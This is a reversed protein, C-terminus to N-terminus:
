LNVPKNSLLRRKRAENLLREWCPIVQYLYEEPSMGAVHNFESDLSDSAMDGQVLSMCSALSNLERDIMQPAKRKLMNITNILHRDEMKSIRIRRGDQTVWHFRDLM